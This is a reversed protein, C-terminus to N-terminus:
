QHPPVFKKGNNTFVYTQDLVHLVMDVKGTTANLQFSVTVPVRDQGDGILQPGIYIIAKAEDDAPFEIIVIQRKDNQVIFHSPHVSSDGNHGVVHDVSFTRFSQTYTWDNMTDTWKTSVWTGAVWLGLMAIM